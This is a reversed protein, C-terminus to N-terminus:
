NELLPSWAPDSGDLPTKMVRENHGTLDISHLQTKGNPEQKYFALVRGNPAWTPGEILWGQSLMREGSGDPRMVGVYFSGQYMRTFAILDGRPSWVPTGYRGQGKSIRRAGSGDAGMVYIQQSGGRDSEFTIQKGDPSYSPATDIGPTNTIRQTRRTRIDMAYIDTNGGQAMSMIVKSGDPSFRPAFTMGPFDGLVEQQGSDINFLYVRPKNGYYSMYTIDQAAPSFRPTLVLVGGDTLNKHNEGDQDMIALRKVRKAKPGTESVYVIRSDFYGQEGTIRKYIEDAIKHAVRRWNNAASNYQFGTMQQEGFVDWLRFQVAIQGNAQASVNGAVLAQANILRWDQFRPAQQLSASDQIFAKKDIPAFLGSRELDAAIVGAMDRAIQSDNPTAAHFDPVAIPMPEVTGRTIDITPEAKAAGIGFPLVVLSVVLIGRLFQKM